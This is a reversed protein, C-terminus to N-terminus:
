AEKTSHKNKIQPSKWNQNSTLYKQEFYRRSVNIRQRGIKGTRNEEKEEQREM